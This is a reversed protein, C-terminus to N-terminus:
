AIHNFNFYLSLLRIYFLLFIDPSPVTMVYVDKYSSLFVPLNKDSIIKPNMTMLIMM